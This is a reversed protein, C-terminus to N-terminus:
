AFMEEIFAYERTRVIEILEPLEAQHGKCALYAAKIMAASENVGRVTPNRRMFPITPVARALIDIIPGMALVTVAYSAINVVIDTQGRREDRTATERFALRYNEDRLDLPAACKGLLFEVMRHDLDRTLEHLRAVSHLHADLPEMKGMMDLYAKFLPRFGALARTMRGQLVGVFFECRFDYDARKDAPPYIYQTFYRKIRAGRDLDAYRALLRDHQYDVLRRHIQESNSNGTTKM